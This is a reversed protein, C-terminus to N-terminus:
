DPLSSQGYTLVQVALFGPNTLSRPDKMLLGAEKDSNCALVGPLQEHGDRPVHHTRTQTKTYELSRVTCAEYSVRCVM